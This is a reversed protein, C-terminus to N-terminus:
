LSVLMFSSEETHVELEEWYEVEAIFWLNDLRLDDLM